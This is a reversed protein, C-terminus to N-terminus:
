RTDCLLKRSPPSNILVYWPISGLGRAAGLPQFCLTARDHLRHHKTGRSPSKMDGRFQLEQHTDAWEGEGKCSAQLTM